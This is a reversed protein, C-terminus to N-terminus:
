PQNLRRLMLTVNNDVDGPADGGPGFATVAMAARLVAVCRQARGCCSSYDGGWRWKLVWMGETCIGKAAGHRQRQADEARHYICKRGWPARNIAHYALSTGMTNRYNFPVSVISQTEIDCEQGLSTVVREYGVLALTIAAQTMGPQGRLAGVLEESMVTISSGYDMLVKDKAAASAGPVALLGAIRQTLAELHPETEVTDM